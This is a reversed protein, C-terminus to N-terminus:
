NTEYWHNMKKCIVDFNLKDNGGTTLCNELVNVNVNYKEHLNNLIHIMFDEDMITNKRQIQEDLNAVREFEFDM